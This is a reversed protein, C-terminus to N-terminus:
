GCGVGFSVIGAAYWVNNDVFMLPGGSDGNCSDKSKKGGACIQSEKLTVNYIEYLDECETKNARPLDVKM